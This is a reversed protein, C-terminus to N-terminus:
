LNGGCKPCWRSGLPIPAICHPCNLTAADDIAGMRGHTHIRAGAHPTNRTATAARVVRRGGHNGTTAARYHGPSALIM